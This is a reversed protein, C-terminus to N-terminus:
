QMTELMNNARRTENARFGIRTETPEGINEAWWYFMPEIKM